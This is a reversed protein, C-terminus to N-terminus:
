KKKPSKSRTATTPKISPKRIAKRPAPAAEKSTTPSAASKAAKANAAKVRQGKVQRSVRILTEVKDQYAAASGPKQGLEKGIEEILQHLDGANEVSLSNYAKLPDRLIGGTAGATLVPFIKNRTGSSGSYGGFDQIM